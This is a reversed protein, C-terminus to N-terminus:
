GETVYHEGCARPHDRGLRSRTLRRPTSGAHAPIIRPSVMDFVYLNPAGRMRPSSGAGIKIGLITPFHEGCARPHDPNLRLLFAIEYTSGAHAPIIRLRPLRIGLLLPAGRMRPSSGEIPARERWYPRHEGCARPHDPEGMRRQAHRNTSGAHAPIIRKEDSVFYKDSQAGRMRPSSGWSSASRFRIPAHEGCARPHDWFPASCARCASTSGAHAPIIRLSACRPLICRLAGRM